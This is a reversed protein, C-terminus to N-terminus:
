FYYFDQILISVTANEGFAQRTVDTGSNMATGQNLKTLILQLIEPNKLYLLFDM